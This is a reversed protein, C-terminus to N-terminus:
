RKLTVRNFHSTESKLKKLPPVGSFDQFPVCLRQAFHLLPFSFFVEPITQRCNVSQNQIYKLIDVILKNNDKLFYSEFHIWKDHKFNSIVCLGKFLIQYHKVELFGDRLLNTKSLVILLMVTSQLSNFAGDYSQLNNYLNLVNLIWNIMEQLICYYHNYLNFVNVCM